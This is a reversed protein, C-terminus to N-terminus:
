RTRQPPPDGLQWGEGSDAPVLVLGYKAAMESTVQWVVSERQAETAGMECLRKLLLTRMVKIDSLKRQLVHHEEAARAQSPSGKATDPMHGGVAAALRRGEALYRDERGLSVEMTQLTEDCM